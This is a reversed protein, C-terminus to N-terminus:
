LLQFHTSQYVTGNIQLQIKHDGPYHKRTSMQRFSHKSELQIEQGPKITKKAWKFVKASQKGNAKMYHVLYDILLTQTSDSKNKVSTKLTINDGITIPKKSFSIATVEINEPPPFGHLVLAGPHAAKLLTRSAHSIIWQTGKNKIKRWRTLTEVVTDPNDKSIDNLNNAVSRRVYLVPDEKLMELLELVPSPDKQFEPLRSFLPLRPRTGESVLRRVHPNKDTAWKKLLALTKEPYKIIFAHIDGEATFRKTMEYLANMSLDYHNLGHRSIFLTQPMIMFGSYNTMDSIIEDVVIEPGLSNILITAAKEFDKPLYKELAETILKSRDLWSLESLKPTIYNIFDNEKFDPFNKSVEKAFLTVNNKNFVDRLQFGEKMPM